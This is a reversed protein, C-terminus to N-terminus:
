LAAVAAGILTVALLALAARRRRSRQWADYEPLALYYTDKGTKVIVGRDIFRGLAREQLPRDPIWTSATEASVANAQMFHSIVDRRAKAVVAAAATAM